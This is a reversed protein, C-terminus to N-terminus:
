RQHYNNAERDWKGGYHYLPKSRKNLKFLYDVLDVMGDDTLAGNYYEGNLRLMTKAPVPIYIHSGGFENFATPNRKKGNNQLNGEILGLCSPLTVNGKARKFHIGFWNANYIFLFETSM